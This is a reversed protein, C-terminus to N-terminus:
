SSRVRLVDDDQTELDEVHNASGRIDLGLLDTLRDVAPLGLGRCEVDQVWDVYCWMGPVFIFDRKGRVEFSKGLIRFEM